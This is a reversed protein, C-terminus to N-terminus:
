SQRHATASPTVADARVTRKEGKGCVPLQGPREALVAPDSIRAAQAQARGTIQRIDVAAILPHEREVCVPLDNQVRATGTAKVWAPSM